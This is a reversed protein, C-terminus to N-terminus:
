HVSMAFSNWDTPPIIVVKNENDFWPNAAKKKTTGVAHPAYYREFTIDSYERVLGYRFDLTKTSAIKDVLPKFLAPDPFTYHRVFSRSRDAIFVFRVQQYQTTSTATTTSTLTQTSSPVKPTHSVCAGHGAFIVLILILKKM